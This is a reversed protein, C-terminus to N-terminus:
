AGAPNLSTATYRAVAHYQARSPDLMSILLEYSGVMIGYGTLTLPQRHLLTRLVGSILLASKKSTDATWIDLGVTNTMGIRSWTGPGDGESSESLVVRGVNLAVGEPVLGSWVPPTDLLAVLASGDRAHEAEIAAAIAVDLPWAASVPVRTM